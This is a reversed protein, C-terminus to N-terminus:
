PRLSGDAAYAAILSEAPEDYETVGNHWDLYLYNRRVLRLEKPTRREDPNRGRWVDYRARTYNRFLDAEEGWPETRGSVLDDELKRQRCDGVRFFKKVDGPENDSLVLTESDDPWVLVVAPFSGDRSLPSAFMCWGQRTGTAVTYRASAGELWAVWERAPEDLEAVAGAVRGPWLDAVNRYLVASLHWVVFVAVACVKAARWLGVAIRGVLAM